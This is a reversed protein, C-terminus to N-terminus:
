VTQAQMQRMLQHRQWYRGITQKLLERDKAVVALKLKSTKSLGLARKEPHTITIVDRSGFSGDEYQLQQVADWSTSGEPTEIGAYTIRLTQSKKLAFPVDPFYKLVIAREQENAPEYRFALNQEHEDAFNSEYSQWLPAEISEAQEIFDIWTQEPAATILMPFEMPQIVAGVQEMRQQMPPHSDFPHPVDAHTMAERFAPSQAFSSLGQAVRGALDLPGQHRDNQNFLEQEVSNRYSAYAGIKVLARSLAGASTLRAATADAAFERARSARSLALEFAARFLSLVFFALLTLGNESLTQMYQEYAQLRPGLAAGTETDGGSFHAMEHALVADAEDRALVRLLPLSVFLSRGQVQTRPLQIPMQTVFFNADIGGVLQTPAATGLTQSFQKIRAWLQPAQEESILEGAVANNLAARKFIATIAVFAAVVALAAAVFVLKLIYIHFFYATLWFSLWVLMAAQVLVEFAAILRLSWWGTTFAVVQLAPKAYALLALGAILLLTFAGLLLSYFSIKHALHFQGFEESLGCAQAQLQALEPYAGDCLAAITMQSIREQAVAKEAESLDDAAAVDEAFVRQMELSNQHQEYGTFVWTIAPLLFLGLAALGLLKLFARKLEPM